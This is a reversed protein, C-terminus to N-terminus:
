ITYGENFAGRPNPRFSSPSEKIYIAQSPFAFDIKEDGLKKYIELLLQQQLDMFIQYDPDLVFFVWEFRLESPGFQFLHCRDFKLLTQRETIEKIWLPILKLKEASTTYAIGFQHVVRREQMRKFNHVRSELLDKNSVVLEEGSLSRLRTTKIGISEITGKHTGTVIYDGVVFPKDLVISLSALLDGLINQAALAVAIGGVGLGALLAGINVGLNSLGVLVITVVFITQIISYLLGLAAASSPDKQIRSQLIHQKWSKMLHQGSLWVQLITIVVVSLLLVFHSTESSNIPKLLLNAIHIFIFTPKIEEIIDLGVDDWHSATRNTFRRMRQAARGVMFKIVVTLLLSTTIVLLWSYVTKSFYIERIDNLFDIGNM